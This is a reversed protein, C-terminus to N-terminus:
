RATCAVQQPCSRCLRAATAVRQARLVPDERAGDEYLQHHGQCAADPLNPLGRLIVDLLKITGNPDV